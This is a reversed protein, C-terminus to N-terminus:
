VIIIVALFILVMAVIAVTIKSPNECEINFGLFSIKMKEKKM